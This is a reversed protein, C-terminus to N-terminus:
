FEDASTRVGPEDSRVRKAANYLYFYSGWSCGSGVLNAGIGVYYGRLGERRMITAFADRVGSYNHAKDRVQMRTKILDFPQMIIKSFM